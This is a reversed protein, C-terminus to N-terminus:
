ENNQGELRRIYADLAARKLAYDNALEQHRIGTLSQVKLREVGYHSHQHDQKAIRSYLLLSFAGWLGLVSVVYALFGASVIGSLWALGTICISLPLSLGIVPLARILSGRAVLVADNAQQGQQSVAIVEGQAPEIPALSQQILPAIPSGEVPEWKREQRREALYQTHDYFRNDSM